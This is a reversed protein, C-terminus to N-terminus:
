PFRLENTPIPQSWTGESGAKAQSSENRGLLMEIFLESVCTISEKNDFM